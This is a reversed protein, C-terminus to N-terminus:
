VGASRSALVLRRYLAFLTGRVAQWSYKRAEALGAQRLKDALEPQQLVKLLAQAMAEPDAAPVMLGTVGEEVIYPVGGVRTSVVPVGSAYAELVSNPMNDVRSPNLAITARRYLAAMADRDLRGTFEVHASVGLEAARQVLAAREPGSGAVVLVVEPVQAHVLAFARIATDIDYILELNRAVMICPPKDPGAQADVAFRELNVINPVIEASAGFKAFVDRLFGSPVALVSARHLTPLVKAASRNLFAEAEGGRYNVIVPTGRWRGIWIAPTAFLFWSWGSNAMVHFLDVRGAVRWLSLLYPILRFFARLVPIRGAWVPWYPANVQVLSVTLGEGELLEKLQRTQNAMGGAPPPLPGILGVSVGHLDNAAM